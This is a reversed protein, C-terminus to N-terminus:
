TMNYHVASYLCGDTYATIIHKHIDTIQFELFLLLYQIHYAEFHYNEDTSVFIIEKSVM